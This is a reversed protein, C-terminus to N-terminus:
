PRVDVSDDGFCRITGLLCRTSRFPDDDNDRANGNKDQDSEDLRKPHFATFSGQNMTRKVVGQGADRISPREIFSQFMEEFFGFLLLCWEGQNQDIDIGKFRIIIRITM